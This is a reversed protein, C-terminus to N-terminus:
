KRSKTKARKVPTFMMRFLIIGFIVALVVMTVISVARYKYIEAEQYSAYGIAKGLLVYSGATDNKSINEANALYSYAKANNPYFIIYASDNVSLLYAKTYNIAASINMSYIDKPMGASSANNPASSLFAFAFFIYLLFAGAMVYGYKAM